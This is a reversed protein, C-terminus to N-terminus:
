AVANLINNQSQGLYWAITKKLGTVFPVAPSFNLKEKAYSFDIAYRYDHGLRDKVYTIQDKYSGGGHSPIITDLLSCLTTVLDINRVENDGGFCYVEGIKGAKLASMVGKCHDEVYIWDRINDGTGYVPIEKGLLAYSITKPILKEKHQRPGYNNSCRTILAPFNYTHYWASVLHDGAAKSASYPSRPTILSNEIFYGEDSLSGYVEDTSMQVFKFPKDQKKLYSQCAKLMMLTGVINTEVFVDPADISNDVHSEAAINVVCDIQHSELIDLVLRHDNISGQILIANKSLNEPSAAYTLADLVVVQKGEKIALDVFHTGIFGAGGTVLINKM